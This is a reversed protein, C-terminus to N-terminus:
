RASMKPTPMTISIGTSPVQMTKTSTSSIQNSAFSRNPYPLPSQPFRPPPLQKRGRAAQRLLCANRASGAFQAPRAHATNRQRLELM